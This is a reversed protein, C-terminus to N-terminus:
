SCCRACISSSYARRRASMYTPPFTSFPSRSPTVCPLTSSSFRCSCFARVAMSSCNACRSASYSAQHSQIAVRDSSFSCSTSSCASFSSASKSFLPVPSLWCIATARALTALALLLTSLCAEFCFWLGSLRLMSSHFSRRSDSSSQTSAKSSTPSATPPTAPSMMLVAPLM